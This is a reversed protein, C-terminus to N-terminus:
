AMSVTLYLPFLERFWRDFLCFLFLGFFLVLFFFFFFFLPEKGGKGRKTEKQRM